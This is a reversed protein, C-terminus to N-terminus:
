RDLARGHRFMESKADVDVMHGRHAICTATIIGVRKARGPNGFLGPRIADRGMQALIAPM